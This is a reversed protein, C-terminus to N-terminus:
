EEPPPSVEFITDLGAYRFLERLQRRVNVLRLKGGEALLRKQTRLLVGIGMSAIYELKGLDVDCVGSVGDLVEEAVEAQSADFRGSLVVTGDPRRAIEMM